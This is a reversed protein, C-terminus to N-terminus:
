LRYMWGITLAFVHDVYLYREHLTEGTSRLTAGHDFWMVHATWALDFYAGHHLGAVDWGGSIGLNMGRGLGYSEDVARGEGPSTWGFSAGVPASIHWGSRPHVLSEDWHLEPGLAVDVRTRSEGRLDSWDTEASAVRALGLISLRRGLAHSYGAHLGFYFTGGEASRRRGDIWLTSSGLMGLEEGVFIRSDFRPADSPDDALAPATTTALALLAGVCVAASKM